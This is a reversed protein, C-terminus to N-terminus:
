NLDFLLFECEKLAAFRLVTTLTDAFHFHPREEAVARCVRKSFNEGDFGVVDQTARGCEVCDDGALADFFRISRGRKIDQDSMQSSETDVDFKHAPLLSILRRIM